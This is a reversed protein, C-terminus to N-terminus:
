IIYFKFKNIIFIDRQKLPFISIFWISWPKVVINYNDLIKNIDNYNLYNDRKEILFIITKYKFLYIFFKSM